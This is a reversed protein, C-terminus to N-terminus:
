DAEVMLDRIRKGMVAEHPTALDLMRPLNDEALPLGKDAEISMIAVAEATLVAKHTPYDGAEAMGSGLALLSFMMRVDCEEGSQAYAMRAYMTAEIVAALDGGAMAMSGLQRALARQADLDGFAAAKIYAYINIQESM